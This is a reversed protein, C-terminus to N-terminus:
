AQADLERTLILTGSADIEAQWGPEVVTTTDAQEVIAPGEFRM